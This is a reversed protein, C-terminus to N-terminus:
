AHYSCSCVGGEGQPTPRRMVTGSLESVKRWDGGAQEDQGGTYWVVKRPGLVCGM